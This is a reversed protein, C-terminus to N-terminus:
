VVFHFADPEVRVDLTRTSGVAEGDLYVRTPRDFEYRASSRRRLSIAPHPVHQGTPLRRMAMWRQDTSPDAVVHDLVGDNPHARPAVLWAGRFESNMAAVVQGRWWSRRAFLHAVFIHEVDDLVAVGLDCPYIRADNSRLRPEGGGPEGMARWLDGGILGIMPLPLGQSRYDTLVSRADSDSRAVAGEPDLRGPWGWELGKSITV